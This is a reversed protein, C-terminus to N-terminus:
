MSTWALSGCTAPSGADSRVARKGVLLCFSGVMAALGTEDFRMAPELSSCSCGAHPSGIRSLSGLSQENKGPTPVSPTYVDALPPVVHTLRPRSSSWGPQCADGYTLSPSGTIV